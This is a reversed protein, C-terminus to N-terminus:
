FMDFLDSMEDKSKKAKKIPKEEQQKEEKPEDDSPVKKKKKIPKEEVLQTSKAQILQKLKELEERLFKNEKELKNEMLKIEM